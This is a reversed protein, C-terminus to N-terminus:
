KTPRKLVAVDEEKIGYYPLYYRERPGRREGIYKIEFQEVDKGVLKDSETVQRTCVVSSPFWGATPRQEPYSNRQEVKVVANSNPTAITYHFVSLLHDHARSTEFTCQASAPIGNLSGKDPAVSGNIRLGIDTTVINSISFKKEDFLDSLPFPKVSFPVAAVGALVLLDAPSTRGADEAPKDGATMLLYQSGSLTPHKRLIFHYRDNAVGVSEDFAAINRVQDFRLSEVRSQAFVGTLVTDPLKVYEGNTIGEIQSLYTWEVEFDVLRNAYEKWHRKADALEDACATRCGSLSAWVCIATLSTISLLTRSRFQM